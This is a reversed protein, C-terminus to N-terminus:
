REMMALERFLAEEFTLSVPCDRQLVRGDIIFDKRYYFPSRIIPKQDNLLEDIPKHYFKCYLSLLDLQDLPEQFCANFAGTVPNRIFFNLATAAEHSFVFNSKGYPTEFHIGDGNRIMNSFFATRGTYDNAGLIIPFRVLVCNKYNSAIYSEMSRKGEFYDTEPRDLPSYTYSEPLFSKEDYARDITLEIPNGYVYTSSVVILQSPHGSKQIANLLKLADPQSYSICDVISDFAHASLLGALDEESKRDIIHFNPIGIDRRSAIHLEVVADQSLIKVLELGLFKTGGLILVKRKKM